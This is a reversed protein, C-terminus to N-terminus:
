QPPNLLNKFVLLSSIVRRSVGLPLTLRLFYDSETGGLALSLGEETSASSPPTPSSALANPSPNFPTLGITKHMTEEISHASIYLLATLKRSLPTLAKFDQRSLLGGHDSQNLQYLLNLKAESRAGFTMYSHRPTYLVRVESLQGILREIPSADPSSTSASTMATASLLDLEHDFKREGIKLTVSDKTKVKPTASERLRLEIMSKLQRLGSRIYGRLQDVEGSLISSLELADDLYVVGRSSSRLSGEQGLVSLWQAELPNLHLFLLGRASQPVASLTPRADTYLQRFLQSLEPSHSASVRGEIGIRDRHARLIFSISDAKFWLKMQRDITSSIASARDPPLGETLLDRLKKYFRTLQKKLSSPRASVKLHPSFDRKAFAILARATDERIARKSIPDGEDASIIVWPGELILAGPQNVDLSKYYRGKEIPSWRNPNLAEHFTAPSKIKFLFSLAWQALSGENQSPIEGSPSRSFWRIPGSLDIQQPQSIGMQSGILMPTMMSFAPVASHVRQAYVQLAMLWDQLRDVGGYIIVDAPIEQSVDPEAGRDRKICGSSLALSLTILPIVLPAILSRRTEARPPAQLASM